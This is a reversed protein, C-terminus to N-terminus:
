GPPSGGLASIVRPLLWHALVRHGEPTLHIRDPQKYTTSMVSANEFIIIMGRTRIRDAIAKMDAHGQAYPIDSKSNNFFGGGIDLIVIRTGDPISSDVRKLMNSTTDGSVGANLVHVHYGKAKLLSELQASWAQNPPVGKGAVNSAGFAVIQAQAVFSIAVLFYFTIFVITLRVPLPRPYQMESHKKNDDFSCVRFSEKSALDCDYDNV